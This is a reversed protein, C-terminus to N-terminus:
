WWPLRLRVRRPIVSFDLSLRGESRKRVAGAIIWWRRRSFRRYGAIVWYKGAFLERHSAFGKVHRARWVRLSERRRPDQQYRPWPLRQAAAANYDEATPWACLWYGRRRRGSYRDRARLIRFGLITLGKFYTPGYYGDPVPVFEFRDIEDWWWKSQSVEANARRDSDPFHRSHHIIGEDTILFHNGENRRVRSFRITRMAQSYRGGREGPM